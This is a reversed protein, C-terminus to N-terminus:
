KQIKKSPIFEKAYYNLGTSTKTKKASDLIGKIDVVRIPVPIVLNDM